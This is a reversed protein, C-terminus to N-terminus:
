KCIRTLPDCRVLRQEGDALTFTMVRTPKASDFFVYLVWDGPPVPGPRTRQGGPSELWARDIGTVALTTPHLAPPPPLPAAEPAPEPPPARTAPRLPPPVEPAVVGIPAPDVPARERLPRPQPELRIVDPVEPQGTPLESTMWQVAAVSLGLTGAIMMAVASLLFVRAGLSVVPPELAVPIITATAEHSRAWSSLSPPAPTPTSLRKLLPMDWVPWPSRSGAIWRDTLEAVTQPRDAPDPRLAAHVADVWQLPADPAVDDLPRFGGNSSAQYIAMLDDAGPGRPNGFAPVGSVLEYLLAGIAFVDARHDVTHASRLQEPAMFAPTGMTVGSRTSRRGAGEDLVRALGFDSIKAVVRDGSLDLLVNGPKLDRHVLGRAHAAQLGALIERALADVEEPTPRYQALLEELSLGPVHEMVLAPFSDVRIVDSVAVINPHKLAAQIRGERILREVSDTALVRLVKLAHHTGLEQHRVRFVVAVGGEGLKAEIVYRDVVDGKRTLPISGDLSSVM